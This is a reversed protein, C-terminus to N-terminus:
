FRLAHVLATCLTLFCIEWALELEGNHNNHIYTVTVIYITYDGSIVSEWSCKHVTSVM